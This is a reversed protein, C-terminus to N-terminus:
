IERVWDSLVSPEQMVEWPVPVSHDSCYRCREFPTFLHRQIRETSMAEEYLDLAGDEPLNQDFEANFYKTTFPLFCAAIKGDYLNNCHAQMCHYFHGLGEMPKLVQKMTFETNLESIGYEVGKERLKAEIADRKNQVPPYYSMWIYTNTERVVDYFDDPMSLLKLGNTVVVHAAKPYLDKILKIYKTIEPNLLPEGGLIRIYGIDDIFEHLRHLDREFKEYNTFIEEHVLGSYHECAKCNLNCHDAIHFELYPLYKAQMLPTLFSYLQEETFTNSEIRSALFFVNADVGRAISETVFMSQAIYNQIPIVIMQLRGDRYRQCMEELGMCGAESDEEFAVFDINAIHTGTSKELRPAYGLEIITKVTQGVNNAQWIAINIDGM